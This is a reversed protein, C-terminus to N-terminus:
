RNFEWNHVLSRFWRFVPYFVLAFLFNMFVSQWFTFSFTSWPSLKSAVSLGLVLVVSYAINTVLAFITFLFLNNERTTFYTLLHLVLLSLSTAILYVGPTGFYLDFFGGVCFALAYAENSKTQLYWSIVFFLLLNPVFHVFLPFFAVQLALLITIFLGILFARM